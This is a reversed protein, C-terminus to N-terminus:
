SFGDSELFDFVPHEEGQQYHMKLVDVLLDKIRQQDPEYPLASSNEYLLECSEEKDDFYQQIEDFSWKGERVDQHREKERGITLSGEALLEELEDMLRVAHYGYKYLREDDRDKKKMKHIMSKAYGSFRHFAGKHLFLERNRRVLEGVATSYLVTDEPVFLTELWTPNADMCTDFFEVINFVKLDHSEGEFSIDDQDYMRFCQKQRGFGDIHGRLIPFVFDIPPICFAIVDRDSEPTATGFAHSGALVEFQVSSSNVFGPPTLHANERLIRGVLSESTRLSLYRRAVSHATWRHEPLRLTTHFLERVEEDELRNSLKHLILMLEVAKQQLFFDGRCEDLIDKARSILEQIDDVEWRDACEQTKRFLLPSSSALCVSATADELIDTPPIM